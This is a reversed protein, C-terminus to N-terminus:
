RSSYHSYHSSHSAHSEHDFVVGGSAMHQQAGHELVLPAKDTSLNPSNASASRAVGSIGLVACAFAIASYMKLTLKQM